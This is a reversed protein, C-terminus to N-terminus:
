PQLAGPMELRRAQYVQHLSQGRDRLDRRAALFVRTLLDFDQQGVHYPRLGQEFADQNWPPNAAIYEVLAELTESTWGNARFAQAAAPTGGDFKVALAATLVQSVAPAQSKMFAAQFQILAKILQNAEPSSEPPLAGADQFTALLAMVAGVQAASARGQSRPVTPPEQASLSPILLGTWALGILVSFTTPRNLTRRSM